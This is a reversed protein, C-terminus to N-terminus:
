VRCGPRTWSAFDTLDLRVLMPVVPRGGLRQYHRTGSESVVWLSRRGALSMGEAGPVFARRRTGDPGVLVGCRTVSQVFWAGPRGGGLAGWVAGQTARPAPTSRQATAPTIDLATSAVLADTDFWDVRGPRHPYWRGIGLRGDGDLLAFSGRLPDALAWVRRVDLTGPDILWLRSTEVLWLGHADRVLGGGHRCTVPDRDGVQGAVPDLRAMTRGTRLDVQTIACYRHHLPADGDFGSVWAAWGATAVGQPVFGRGTRLWVGACVAHDNAFRDLAPKGLYAPPRGRVEDYTLPGCGSRRDDHDPFPLRSGTCGAGAALALALM